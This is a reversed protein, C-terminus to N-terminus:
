PLKLFRIQRNTADTLVAGGRKEDWALGSIRRFAATGVPGDQRGYNRKLVTDVKGSSIELRRIVNGNSIIYLKGKYGLLTEPGVFSASTGVGDKTSRIGNGAITTVCYGSYNSRTGCTVNSVKAIKRIRANGYDTVYVNDHGDVYIGTPDFFIAGDSSGLAPGNRFGRSGNGAFTTVKGTTLDVARIKHNSKDVVLLLGTSMVALAVPQAFTASRGFADTSGYKGSGAFTGIKGSSLEVSRIKRSIADAVYLTGKWLALGKPENFQGLTSSGDKDGPVGAGAFTTVTGSSDVKRIIYNKQDSVYLTGHGDSIVGYPYKFRASSKSGNAFDTDLGAYLSVSHPSNLAVKRIRHGERDSVYLSAGLLSIGYPYRFSAKTGNSSNTVKAVGNGAITDVCWGTFSSSSGCHGKNLSRVRRIRHNFEDTVYLIGRYIDLHTPRHFRAKFLGEGDAFGSGKGGAITKVSPSAGLSVFRIANNYSDAVYLGDEATNLVTGRPFTFSASKASGDRLGTSGSGAITEVCHPETTTKGLCSGGSTARIARIRNNYTDSVYLVGKSSLTLGYPLHFRSDKGTGDKYGRLRNGAITSVCWKESTSLGNCSGSRVPSIKRISHNGSDTVFLNGSSDRVIDTPCNFRAKSAPGDVMGSSGEKDGAVTSVTRWSDIVRVVNNRCDAIWLAGGSYRIGMPQHFLVNPARGDLLTKGYGAITTVCGNDIRGDCDHDKGDCKETIPKKTDCVLKGSRCFLGGKACEGKGSGGGGQCSGGGGPNGEDIKGDCNDDKLNCLERSPGLQGVCVTDWKGGLCRNFGGKCPKKCFYTGDSQRTCGNSHTYCPRTLTFPTKSGPANDIYGDCDDDVQNCQEQNGQGKSGQCFVSTGDKSCAFKGTIKCSGSGSTCAKGKSSFAEDIKGDCNDDKDNCLEKGPKTEGKCTAWKGNECLAEGSRCTGKGVTGAPGTYCSKKLTKGTVPNIDIKGDCNDDLGNCDESKQKKTDPKVNCIATKKDASCVYKGKVKCVGKGAECDKGKNPWDEDVKGDCDNDKGDCVEKQPKQDVASCVTGDKKSNCKHTGKKKCAGAGAYCTKGKDAFTEDTKGDCDDDKDNCVEEEPSIVKVCNEDWRGNVCFREGVKCSGKCTWEDKVKVCGKVGEPYCPRSIGTKCKTGDSTIPKQCRYDICILSGPCENSSSCGDPIEGQNNGFLGCGTLLSLLLFLILSHFIRVPFVSKGKWIPVYM